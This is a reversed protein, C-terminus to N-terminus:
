CKNPDVKTTTTMMIIYEPAIPFLITENIENKSWEKTQYLLLISSM